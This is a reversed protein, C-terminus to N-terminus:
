SIILIIMLLSTLILTIIKSGNLGLFNFKEQDVYLLANVKLNTNPFKAFSKRFKRIKRLDGGLPEDISFEDHRGKKYNGTIIFYDVLDKKLVKLLDEVL